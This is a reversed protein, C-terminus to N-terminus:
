RREVSVLNGVVVLRDSFQRQIPNWVGDCTYLTIRPDETQVMFDTSDRPVSFVDTISWETRYADSYIFVANGAQVKKLNRFVHGANITSVHGNFISNGIDGPDPSDDQHGVDWWSAEYAGDHIGVEVIQDDLGISPITMWTPTGYDPIPTPSPAATPGATPVLTATPGRIAVRTSVLHPTAATGPTPPEEARAAITEGPGHPAQRAHEFRNWAASGVLMLALALSGAGLAVLLRGIARM